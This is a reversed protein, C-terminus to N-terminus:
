GFKKSNRVILMWCEDDILKNPKSGVAKSVKRRKRGKRGVGKQYVLQFPDITPV